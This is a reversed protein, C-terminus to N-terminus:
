KASLASAWGLSKLKEEDAKGMPIAIARDGRACSCAMCTMQSEMPTVFGAYTASVGQQGVWSALEQAEDANGSAAWPNQGCQRPAYASAKALPSFGFDKSLRRADAATKARVVLLDGTPCSCALCTMAPTTPPVIGAEALAIGQSKYYAAVQAIEGSGNPASASNWPNTNCQVVEKTLWTSAARKVEDESVEVDSGGGAEAACGSAFVVASLATASFAFLAVLHGLGKVM